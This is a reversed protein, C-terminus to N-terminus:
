GPPTNPVAPQVANASRRQCKGSGIPPSSIGHKGSISIHCESVSGSSRKYLQQTHWAHSTVATPMRMTHQHDRHEKEHLGGGFIGRQAGPSTVSHGFRCSTLGASSSVSATAARTVASTAESDASFTPAVWKAANTEGASCRATSSVPIHRVAPLYATGACLVESTVSNAGSRWGISSWLRRHDMGRSRTRWCLGCEQQRGQGKRKTPGALRTVPSQALFPFAKSVVTAAPSMLRSFSRRRPGGAATGSRRM